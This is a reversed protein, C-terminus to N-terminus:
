QRQHERRKLPCVDVIACHSCISRNLHISLAFLLAIVGVLCVVAIVAFNFFFSIVIGAIPVGWILFIVSGWKKMAEAHSQLYKEKWEELPTDKRFYCYQCAKLPMIVFFFLFFGVIYALSVWISLFYLGVAGLAVMILNLLLRSKSATAPCKKNSM